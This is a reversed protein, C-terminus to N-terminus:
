ENRGVPSRFFRRFDERLRALEEEDRELRASLSTLGRECERIRSYGGAADKRHQDDLAQRVELSGIRLAHAQGQAGTFRDPAPDVLKVSGIGGGVGALLAFIGVVARESLNEILRAAAGGRRPSRETM